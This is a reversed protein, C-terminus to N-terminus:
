ARGRGDEMEAQLTEVGNPISIILAAAKITTMKPLSRVGMPHWALTTMCKEEARLCRRVTSGNISVFKDFADINFGDLLLEDM